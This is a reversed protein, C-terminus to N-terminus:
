QGGNCVKPGYKAETWHITSPDVISGTASNLIGTSLQGLAEFVKPTLDLGTSKCSACKDIVRCTASKSGHGIKIYDGCKPPNHGGWSESVACGWVSHPDPQWGNFCAPNALEKPENSTGYNSLTLGSFHHGGSSSVHSHGKDGKDGHHSKHGSHSDGSPGSSKPDHARVTPNHDGGSSPRGGNSPSCQKSLDSRRRVIRHVPLIDRASLDDSSRVQIAGAPHDYANVALGTALTLLTLTLGRM